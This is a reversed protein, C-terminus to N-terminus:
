AFFRKVMDILQMSRREEDLDPDEALAQNLETLRATLRATLREAISRDLEVASRLAAATIVLLQCEGSARVTASRVDDSLLAAEGFFQGAALAAVRADPGEKRKALM